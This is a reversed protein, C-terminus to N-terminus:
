KPSLIARSTDARVFDVIRTVAPQGPFAKAVREAREQLTDEPAFLMKYASRVTQIQERPFGHRKMGVLNLGALGERVGIVLGFPIVDLDAGSMGGLFAYAGVRVYQHVASLGGLIAHDEITCHGAISVSNALIVQDGIRCDHAIHSQAMFLCKSGITTVMGGGVTGPNITVYERIVNDDGIELRSEEGAYKMDQPAQGLSAFPYIECRAGIRTRGAIVVHSHLRCRDGLEVEPGIVCYPGIAVESGIRASPDVIATPHQRTM